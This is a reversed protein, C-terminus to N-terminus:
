LNFTINGISEFAKMLADMERRFSKLSKRVLNLHDLLQINSKCGRCIIVDRVKVQKLTVPNIFKCSPCTLNVRHRSLNIM